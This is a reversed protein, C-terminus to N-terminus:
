GGAVRFTGNLREQWEDEGVVEFRIVKNRM